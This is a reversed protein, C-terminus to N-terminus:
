IKQERTLMEKKVEMGGRNYGGVKGDSRIVRHCPVTPDFNNRMIMGVARAAGASGAKVAVEKYSMTQGKPISRVVDRVRESFSDAKAAYKMTLIRSGFTEPSKLSSSKRM